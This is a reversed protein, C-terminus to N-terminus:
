VYWMKPNVSQSWWAYLMCVPDFLTALASCLADHVGADVAGDAEVQLLWAKVLAEIWFKRAVNRSGEPIREKGTSSAGRRKRLLVDNQIASVISLGFASVCFVLWPPPFLYRSSVMMRWVSAWVSSQRHYRTDLHYYDYERREWRKQAAAPTNPFNCTVWLPFM